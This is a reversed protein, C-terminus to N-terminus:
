LITRHTCCADAVSGENVEDTNLMWSTAAAEKNDEEEEGGAVCREHSLLSLAPSSRVTRQRELQGESKEDERTATNSKEKTLFHGHPSLASRPQLRISM